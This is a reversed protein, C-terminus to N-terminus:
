GNTSGKVKEETSIVEANKLLNEWDLQLLADGAICQYYVKVVEDYSIDIIARQTDPPIVKVLAKGFETDWIDNGCRAQEM